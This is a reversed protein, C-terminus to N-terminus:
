NSWLTSTSVCQIRDARAYRENRQVDLLEELEAVHADNAAESRKYGETSEKIYIAVESRIDDIALRQEAATKILSKNEKKARLAEIAAENFKKQYRAKEEAEQKVRFELVRIKLLAQELAATDAVMDPFEIAAKLNKQCDQPKAAGNDLKTAAADMKPLKKEVKTISTPAAKLSTGASAILTASKASLVKLDTFTTITSM